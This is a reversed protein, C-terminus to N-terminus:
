KATEDALQFAAVLWRSDRQGRFHSRQLTLIAEIANTAGVDDTGNQPTVKFKQRVYFDKQSQAAYEQTEVSEITANEGAALVAQVFPKNLFQEYPTSTPAPMGPEPPAPPRTGDVTLKFAQETEKAVLKTLWSRGFEEARSTRM